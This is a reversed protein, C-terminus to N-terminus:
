LCKDNEEGKKFIEFIIYEFITQLDINHEKFYKDLFKKSTNLRYEISKINFTYFNYIDKHSSKYDSDSDKKILELLNNYFLDIYSKQEMLLDLEPKDFDKIPQVIIKPNEGILNNMSFRYFFSKEQYEEILDKIEIETTNAYIFLSNYNLM